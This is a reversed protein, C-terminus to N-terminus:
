ANEEKEELLSQIKSIEGVVPVVKMGLDVGTGVKTVNVGDPGKLGTPIVVETLMVVADANIPLKVTKGNEDTVIELKVFRM